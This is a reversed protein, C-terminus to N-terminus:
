SRPITRVPPPAKNRPISTRIELCAAIGTRPLHDGRVHTTRPAPKSKSSGSNSLSIESGEAVSPLIM